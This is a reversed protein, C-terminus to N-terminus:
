ATPAVVARTGGMEAQQCCLPCSTQVAAAHNAPGGRHSIHGEKFPTGDSRGILNGASLITAPISSSVMTAVPYRTIAAQM